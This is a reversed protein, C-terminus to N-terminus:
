ISLINYVKWIFGWCFENEDVYIGLYLVLRVGYGVEFDFLIGYGVYESDCKVM